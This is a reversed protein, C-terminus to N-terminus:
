EEGGSPAGVSESSRREATATTQKDSKREIRRKLSIARREVLFWSLAALPVTAATAIVFFVIPNLRALGFSALLQQIPFAYIYVGYSLDNRLQV